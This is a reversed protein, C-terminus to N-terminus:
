GNALSDPRTTVTHLCVPPESCCHTEDTQPPKKGGLLDLNAINVKKLKLSVSTFKQKKM